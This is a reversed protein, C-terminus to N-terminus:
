KAKEVIAGQLKDKITNAKRISCRFACRDIGTACNIQSDWRLVCAECMDILLQAEPLTLNVPKM